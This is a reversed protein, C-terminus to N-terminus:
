QLMAALRYRETITHPGPVLQPVPVWIKGPYPVIPDDPLRPIGDLTIEALWLPKSSGDNDNSSPDVSKDAM